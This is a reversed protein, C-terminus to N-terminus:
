REAGIGENGERALTRRGRGPRDALMAPEQPDCATMPLSTALIHPGRPNRYWRLDLPHGRRLAAWVTM